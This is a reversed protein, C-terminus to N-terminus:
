ISLIISVDQRQFLVFSEEATYMCVQAALDPFDRLLNSLIKFDLAGAVLQVSQRQGKLGATLPSRQVLVLVKGATQVCTVWVGPEDSAVNTGLM